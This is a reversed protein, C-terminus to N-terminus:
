MPLPFQRRALCDRVRRAVTPTGCQYRTLKPPECRVLTVRGDITMSESPAVLVIPSGMSPGRHRPPPPRASQAAQPPADSSGGPAGPSTSGAGPAFVSASVAALQEATASCHIQNIFAVGDREVGSAHVDISSAEEGLGVEAAGLTAWEQETFKAKGSEQRGRRGARDFKSPTDVGEKECGEDYDSDYYPSNLDTDGDSEDM